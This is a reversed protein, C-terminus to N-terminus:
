AVLLLEYDEIVEFNNICDRNITDSLSNMKIYLKGELNKVINELATYEERLEHSYVREGDIFLGGEGDVKKFKFGCKKLIDEFKSDTLDNFISEYRNEM